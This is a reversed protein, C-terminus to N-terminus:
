EGHQESLRDLNTDIRALIDRFEVVEKPSIGREIEASMSEFLETVESCLRSGTETQLVLSSRRDDPNERRVILKKKELRDLIRTINAPSKGALECLENQSRGTATDLNKLLHAQEGTLDFPKLVREVYNRMTQSTLYILRGLSNSQCTAM